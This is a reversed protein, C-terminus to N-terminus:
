ARLPAAVRARSLLESCIQQGDGGRGADSLEDLAEAVNREEGSFRGTDVGGGGSPACGAVVPLVLLLLALPRLVRRVIRSEAAM